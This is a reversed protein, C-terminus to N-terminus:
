RRIQRLYQVVQAIREESLAGAMAPMPMGTTNRPDDIPRGSRIFEALAPDPTETVFRSTTLDIGFGQPPPRGRGDDGHCAACLGAFIEAGGGNGLTGPAAPLEIRPRSAMGFPAVPPLTMAARASVAASTGVVTSRELLAPTALGM